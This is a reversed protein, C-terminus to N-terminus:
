KIKPVTSSFLIKYRKKDSKTFGRLRYDFQKDLRHLNHRDRILCIKSCYDSNKKDTVYFATGCIDCHEKYLM